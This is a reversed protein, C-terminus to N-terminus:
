FEGLGKQQKARAIKKYTEWSKRFLHQYRPNDYNKEIFEKTRPDSPYGSGFDINLKKKIKELEKERTVKAVISAAGVVLYHLDAKHEVQLIIDTNDVKKQMYETYAKINTSPCDIICKSINDDLKVSLKNLLAAAHDAELWNLNTNDSNVAEDVEWPEIIKFEYHIIKILGVLIDERQKETLLKSDKVGLMRLEEEKGEPIAAVCIV